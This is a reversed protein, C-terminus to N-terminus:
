SSSAASRSSRRACSTRPTPSSSGGPMTSSPSGCGCANSRRRSSPSRTRRGSRRSRHDFDGAAIREAATELRRIRRTFRRRQSPARSCPCPWAPSAQQRDSHAQRACRERSRRKLPASLLMSLTRTWRSPSRRAIATAGSSGGRQRGDQTSPGSRSRIADAVDVSPLGNSDALHGAFHRRAAPPRGRSRRPQSQFSSRWRGATPRPAATFSPSWPRGLAREVEDIKANVLRSELRPVVDPLRDRAGGRRERLPRARAQRALRPRRLRNM